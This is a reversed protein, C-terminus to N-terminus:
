RGSRPIGGRRAADARRRPDHTFQFMDPEFAWAQPPMLGFAQRALGRRLYRVIADRDIAYGIAHRVRKDTLVPDRM